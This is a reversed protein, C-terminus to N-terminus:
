AVGVAFRCRRVHGVESPELGGLNRELNGDARDRHGFERSSRVGGFIGHLPCAALIPQLPSFRREIGEGEVALRSTRVAPDV